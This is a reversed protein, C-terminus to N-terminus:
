RTSATNGGQRVFKRVGAGVARHHEEMFRVMEGPRPPMTSHFSLNYTDGGGGGMSSGPHNNNAANTLGARMPTAIASPIIMEGAHVVALQDKSLNWAGVDYGPVSGAAGFANAAAFMSAGFAPATTNMPFPAAAMSAVGGAGALSAESGVTAAHEAKILGIKILQKTIFQRIMGELIGAVASQIGQWISKFTAAFGQQMTVMRSLASSFTSTLSGWMQNRQAMAQRDLQLLKANHTREAAEIQGQLAQLKTPDMNPDLKDLELQRVLAERKIRYRQNEFQKEQAILKGKTEVGLQEQFQAAAEEDDVGALAADEKSKAIGANIARIQTAKEKEAKIVMESAAFAEKSQNGYMRRVYAEEAKLISIKENWNRGAAEFDSRYVSLQEAITEATVAKRAALWKREIEVKDKASLNTRKLAQAWYDAESQLSFAQATGQAEQALGWATKKAELEADLGQVLDDKAAKGKKEKPGKKGSIDDNRLKDDPAQHGRAMIGALTTPTGEDQNKNLPKGVHSWATALNDVASQAAGMEEAIHKAHSTAIQDVKAMGASWDAEIAGWNLTLADVIVNKVTEFVTKIIEADMKLEEVHRSFNTAFLNVEAAMWRFSLVTRRGEDIIETLAGVFAHIATVGNARFWEALDTLLPLMANGIQVKFAEFVEKVERVSAEYKHMATIGQETTVLGLEKAVRAGEEIEANTLRMLQTLDGAGRGFMMQALATRDVGTRYEGLKGLGDTLIDLSDRFHGNADRTAIGVKNFGDEHSKLQRVMKQSATTVTDTEIGLTSMAAHVGSAKELTIGLARSLHLNDTTLKNTAEIAKEFIVGGALAATVGLMIGNLKGMVAGVGEWHTKVKEGALSMRAGAGTVVAAADNAATAVTAFGARMSSAFGGMQVNVGEVAAGLGAISGKAMNIAPAVGSADGTIRVEINENV